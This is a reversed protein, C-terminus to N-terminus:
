RVVPLVFVFATFYCEDATPVVFLSNFSVEFLLDFVILM